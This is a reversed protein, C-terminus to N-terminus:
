NAGSRYDSWRMAACRATRFNLIYALTRVCASIFSGNTGYAGHIRHRKNAVRRPRLLTSTKPAPRAASVHLLRISLHAPLRSDSKECFCCRFAATFLLQLCTHGMQPTLQWRGFGKAIRLIDKVRSRCSPSRKETPPSHFHLESTLACWSNLKEAHMRQRISGFERRRSTAPETREHTGRKRNVPM